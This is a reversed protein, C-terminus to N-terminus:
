SKSNELKRVQGKEVEVAMAQQIADVAIALRTKGREEVFYGRIGKLPGVVVEVADGQRLYQHPEPDYGLQLIRMVAEIQQSPIRVPEGGFSVMRVVGSTQLALFRESKDVHVFVYSPFLPEEVKKVRDSWVKSITRLPLLAELKKQELEKYVKKEFRPRTYIAYWHRDQKDIKGSGM